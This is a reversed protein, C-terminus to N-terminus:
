SPAKWASALSGALFVLLRHFHPSPPSPSDAFVIWRQQRQFLFNPFPPRPVWNPLVASQNWQSKLLCTPSVVVCVCHILTCQFSNVRILYCSAPFSSDRKEPHFLPDNNTSSCAQLPFPSPPRPSIGCSQQPVPLLIYLESATPFDTQKPHHRFCVWSSYKDCKILCLSLM